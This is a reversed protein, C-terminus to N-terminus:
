GHAAEVHVLDVFQGDEPIMPDSDLCEYKSPMLAMTLQTVFNENAEALKIGLNYCGPAGCVVAALLPVDETECCKRLVDLFQPAPRGAFAINYIQSM